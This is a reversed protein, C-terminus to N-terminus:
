VEPADVFTYLAVIKDNETVVVDLGTVAPAAVPPGFNWPLRGISHFADLPGRETFVWGPFKQQIKEVANNLDAHGVHRGGHDIFVGDSAWIRAIVDRRKKADREGFVSFLNERILSELMKSM